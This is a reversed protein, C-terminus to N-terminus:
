RVPNDAAANGRRKEPETQERSPITQLLRQKLRFKYPGIQQKGFGSKVGVDLREIVASEEANCASFGQEIASNLDGSSAYQRRAAREVCDDFIKTLHAYASLIQQNKQEEAALDPKQEACGSVVAGILLVCLTSRVSSMNGQDGAVATGAVVRTVFDQV